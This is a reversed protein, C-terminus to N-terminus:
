RRGQLERTTHEAIYKEAAEKSEFSKIWDHKVVNTFLNGLNVRSAVWFVGDRELVDVTEILYEEDKETRLVPNARLLM